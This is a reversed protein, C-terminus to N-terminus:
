KKVVKHTSINNFIYGLVSTSFWSCGIMVFYLISVIIIIKKFQKKVGDLGNSIFDKLEESSMHNRVINKWYTVLKETQSVAVWFHWLRLVFSCLLYVSFGRFFITAEQSFLLNEDILKKSVVGVTLIFAFSLIDKLFGLIYENTKSIYKDAISTIDKQLDSLEKTYEVKRELIVYKYRAKAEEFAKQIKYPVVQIFCKDINIDLSLRDILLLIRTAENNEAYCWSVIKRLQDISDKSINNVYEIDIDNNKSMKIEIRRKGHLLIKENSYYEQVITYLLAKASALHFMRALDCETDGWTILFREPTFNSINDSSIFHVTKKIRETNPLQTSKLWDYESLDKNRDSLALIAIRYGGLFNDLDHVYIKVPQGCNLDSDELPTNLGSAKNLWENTFYNKDFFLYEKIDKNENTNLLSLKDGISLSWNDNISLNLSKWSETFDNIKLHLENEIYTGLVLDKLEYLIDLVNQNDIQGKYFIGNLTEKPENSYQRLLTLIAALKKLDFNEM